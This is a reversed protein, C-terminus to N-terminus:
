LVQRFNRKNVRFYIDQGESLISNYLGYEDLFDRKEKTSWIRDESTSKAVAQNVLAINKELSEPKLFDAIATIGIIGSIVLILPGLEKVIQKLTNEM